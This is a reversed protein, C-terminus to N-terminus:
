SSIRWLHPKAFTEAQVKSDIWTCAAKKEARFRAVTQGARWDAYDAIHVFFEVGDCAVVRAAGDVMQLVRHTDAQGCWQTAPPCVRADARQQMQQLAFFVHLANGLKGLLIGAFGQLRNHVASASAANRNGGRLRVVASQHQVNSHLRRLSSKIVVM